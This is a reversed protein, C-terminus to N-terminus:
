KQTTSLKLKEQIEVFQYLYAWEWGRYMKIWPTMGGNMICKDKESVCIIIRNDEPKEDWPHWMAKHYDNVKKFEALKRSVFEDLVEYYDTSDWDIDKHSKLFEEAWSIVEQVIHRSDFDGSAMLGRVQISMDVLVELNGFNWEPKYM